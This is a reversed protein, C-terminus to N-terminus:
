WRNLLSLFWKVLFPVAASDPSPVAKSIPFPVLPVVELNPFPVVESEPIAELNPFTVWQIM